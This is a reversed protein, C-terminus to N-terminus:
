SATEARLVDELSLSLREGIYDAVQYAWGDIRASLRKAHAAAEAGAEPSPEARMRLWYHGEHRAIETTFRLGDFTLIEARATPDAFDLEGEPRVGDLKVKALVSGLRRIKAVDPQRGPPVDAVGMAPAGREPRVALLRTGERPRIEVRRIDGPAIDVVDTELWPYIGDSLDVLGSALWARAEGPRRVYTGKDEWGTRNHRQKGVILEALVEGDAGLLRVLRSGAGPRDPDEVNLRPYLDARRTKAAIKELGALGVLMRRVQEDEVPYGYTSAAVWGDGRRELAYGGGGTVVEVKRVKPVQEGFDPLVPEGDLRVTDRRSEGLYSAFAVLTVVVTVILLVLFSRPRM